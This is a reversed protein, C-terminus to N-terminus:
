SLPFLYYYCYWLNEVQEFFNKPLKSLIEVPDLMDYPDMDSDQSNDEEEEEGDDGGEDRVKCAHIM